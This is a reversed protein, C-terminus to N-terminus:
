KLYYTRVLRMAEKEDQACVNCFTGIGNVPGEYQWSFTKQYTAKDDVVKLRDGMPIVNLVLKNPFQVRFGNGISPMTKSLFTLRTETRNKGYVYYIDGRQGDKAWFSVQEYTDTGPEGFSFNAVKMQANALTGVLTSFLFILTSKKMYMIRIVHHNSYSTVLTAVSHKPIGGSLQIRRTASLLSLNAVYRGYDLLSM